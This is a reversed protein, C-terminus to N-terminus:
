VRANNAVPVVVAVKSNCLYFVLKRNNAVLPMLFKCLLEHDVKKVMLHCPKYAGDLLCQWM